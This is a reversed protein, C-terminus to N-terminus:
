SILYELTKNASEQWTNNKIKKMKLSLIKKIKENKNIIDLSTAIDYINHPNILIAGDKIIEPISSTSSTIIPINYSKAEILPIGFGECFSPFIFIKANKFIINKEEENLFDTFIIKDELKYKKVKKFINKFLWGKKGSILLKINKNQRHIKAFSDIIGEINKRPELTALFLVYEKSKINFYDLFFREKELDIKDNRNEFGNYIVKIKEEKIKYINILDKKTNESVAIIKDSNRSFKKPNMQWHWINKRFSFYRKNKLFSLDHITIIKKVKKSLPINIFHPSFFIDVGLIKDIKPFPIIKWFWELFKNPFNFFKKEINEGDFNPVDKKINRFSNFFIVYQNKKDLKSIENIINFAYRPIGSPKPDQLVRGDIGIRLTKKTKEM